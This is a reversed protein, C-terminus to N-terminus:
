RPTVDTGGESVAALGCTCPKADFAHRKSGSPVRLRWHQRNESERGCVNCIDSECNHHHQGYTQLATRLRLVDAERQKLEPTAIRAEAAPEQPLVALLDRLLEYIDQVDLFAGRQCSQCPLARYGDITLRTMLFTLKSHLTRLDPPPEPACSCGDWDFLFGSHCNCCHVDIATGHECVVDGSQENRSWKTESV